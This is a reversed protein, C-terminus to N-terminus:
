TTTPSFRAFQQYYMTTWDHFFWSMSQGCFESLVSRQLLWCSGEGDEEGAFWSTWLEPQGMCVDGTAPGHDDPDSLTQFNEDTKPKQHRLKGWELTAIESYGRSESCVWKIWCPIEPLWAMRVQGAKNRAYVVMHAPGAGRLIPPQPLNRIIEPQPSEQCM